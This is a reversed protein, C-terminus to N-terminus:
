QKPCCYNGSGSSGSCDKMYFAIKGNSCGSISDTCEGSCEKLASNFISTRNAFIFVLFLLVILALAAIIITNISLSQAKM